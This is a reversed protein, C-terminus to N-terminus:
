VLMEASFYFFSYALEARKDEDAEWSDDAIAMEVFIEEVKFEETIQSKDILAKM